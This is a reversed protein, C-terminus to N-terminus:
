SPGQRRQRADAEQSAAAKARAEEHLQQAATAATESGDKKRPRSPNKELRGQKAETEPLEVALKGKATRAPRGPAILSEGQADLSSDRAAAAKRGQANREHSMAKHKSANAHVKTGDLAM